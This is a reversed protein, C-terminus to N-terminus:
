HLKTQILTVSKKWDKLSSSSCFGILFFLSSMKKDVVLFCCSFFLYSTNNICCSVNQVAAIKICRMNRDRTYNPTHIITLNSTNDSLKDKENRMWM